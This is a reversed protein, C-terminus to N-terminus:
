DCPPPRSALPLRVPDPDYPYPPIRRREGSAALTPLWPAGTQEGWGTGPASGSKARIGHAAHLMPSALRLCTPAAADKAEGVWDGAGTGGVVLAALVLVTFFRRPRM